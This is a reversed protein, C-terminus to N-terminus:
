NCTSCDNALYELKFNPLICNSKISSQNNTKNKNNLRRGKLYISAISYYIIILSITNLNTDKCNIRISILTIVINMIKQLENKKLHHFVKDKNIINLKVMINITNVFLENLSKDKHYVKSMDKNNCYNHLIESIISLVNTQKKINCFEFYNCIYCITSQNINYLNFKEINKIVRNLSLYINSTKLQDYFKFKNYNYTLKTHEQDINSTM